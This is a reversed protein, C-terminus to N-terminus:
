IHPDERSFRFVIQLIFITATPGGLILALTWPDIPVNHQPDLLARYHETAGAITLFTVLASLGILLVKKHWPIPQHPHSQTQTETKPEEISEYHQAVSKVGPIEQLNSPLVLASTIDRDQFIKYCGIADKNSPKTTNPDAPLADGAKLGIGSLM